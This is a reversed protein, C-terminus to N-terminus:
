LRNWVLPLRILVPPPPEPVAGYRSVGSQGAAYLLPSAEETAVVVQSLSLSVLGENLPQWTLGGNLSRFVGDQAACVYVNPRSLYDPHLAVGTLNQGLLGTFDWTDGMDASRFVGATTSAFIWTRGGYGVGQALAQIYPTDPEQSSAVWSLGGDTTTFTGGGWTGVVLRAEDGTGGLWLIATTNLSALGAARQTWSAGANPSYYVGHEATALWIDKPDSSLALDLVNLVAPATESAQWTSGKDSSVFLGGSTAAYVTGTQRYHPAFAIAHVEASSLTTMAWTDGGDASRYLGSPGGALVIPQRVFSPATAVAEITVGLVGEHREAWTEGGDGSRYIGRACGAYLVVPDDSPIALVNVSQALSSSLRWTDGNDASRYLGQETGLYLEGTGDYDPAFAVSHVVQDPFWPGNWTNGGDGSFYAGALTGVLLSPVTAFSPAVAIDIVPVANVGTLGTPAWTQGGDDSRYLGIATGGFAVFPEGVGGAIAVSLASVAPGVSFWRKGASPTRALGRGTAALVTQDTAFNPSVALDAVALSALGTSWSSWSLGGDDSRLVGNQPTGLFIMGDQGASPSLAAV